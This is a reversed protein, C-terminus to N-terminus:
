GMSERIHRDLKSSLIDKVVPKLAGPLNLLATDMIQRAIIRNPETM